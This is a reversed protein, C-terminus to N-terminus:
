GALLARIEAVSLGGDTCQQVFEKYEDSKPYRRVHSLVNSCAESRMAVITLKGQRVYVTSAQTRSANSSSLKYGNIITSM